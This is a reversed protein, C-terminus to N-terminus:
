QNFVRQQIFRALLGRSEPTDSIEYETQILERETMSRWFARMVLDTFEPHFQVTMVNDRYRLIQHPDQASRALVTAGAPPTLVTQSHILNAAFQRPLPALLPDNQAAPLLEITHTGIEMGQPHYAVEGGLAYALLQHGYCVGFMPVEATMARRL